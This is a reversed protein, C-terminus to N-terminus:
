NTRQERECQFGKLLIVGFVRAVVNILSINRYNSCIRKDGKKFLPLLVAESWNNPVAECLWVKITMRHLWPSLLKTIAYSDYPHACKRRRPRTLM